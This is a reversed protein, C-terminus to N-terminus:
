WGREAAVLRDYARVIRREGTASGDALRVALRVALRRWVLRRRTSRATPTLRPSPRWSRDAPHGTTPVHALRLHLGVAGALRAAGHRLAPDRALDERHGLLRLLAGAKDEASELHETASLESWGPPIPARM